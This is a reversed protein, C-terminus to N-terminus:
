IEAIRIRRAATLLDDLRLIRTTSEIPHPLNRRPERWLFEDADGPAEGEGQLIVAPPQALVDDPRLRIRHWFGDGVATCLRMLIHEQQRLAGLIVEILLRDELWHTRSSM